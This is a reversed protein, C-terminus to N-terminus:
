EDDGVGPVPVAPDEQFLGILNGETDRVHASWGVTPIPMKDTVLTGGLREVRTMAEDINDVSFYILVGEPAESRLTMAGEAGPGPEEGATLVWYDVPAWREVKWELADRYFEGARDPDDIPIDFHVVRTM